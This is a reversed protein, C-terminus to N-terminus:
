LVAKRVADLFKGVAPELGLRQRPERRNGLVEVASIGIPAPPACPLIPRDGARPENAFPPADLVAHRHAILIELVPPSWVFRQGRNGARDGAGAPVTQEKKAQLVM